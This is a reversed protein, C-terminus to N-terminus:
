KLRPRGPSRTYLGTVAPPGWCYLCRDLFNYLDGTVVVGLGIANKIYPCQAHTHLKSVRFYQGSRAFKVYGEM